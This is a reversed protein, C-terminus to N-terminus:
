ISDMPYRCKMFYFTNRQWIVSTRGHVEPPLLELARPQLVVVHSAAAVAALVKPTPKCAGYLDTGACAVVVPLDPAAARAREIVQRKYM